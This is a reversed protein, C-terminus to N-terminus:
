KSEAKEAIIGASQEDLVHVIRKAKGSLITHMFVTPIAVVLGQVTTVLATSIGGAMLKPDGAGFDTIAQFTQIMGTVTGLLGMLPAVMSIIKIMNLGGEIAPREKLVAEELKLELSEVDIEPNDEAVKLVRGLPNDTSARSAKLQKSVKGGIVTLAFFRWIILILGVGGLGYIIIYGVLGGQEMREKLDPRAVMIQMIEGGLPLTPDVGVQTFGSTANELASPDPLGAPQMRPVNLTESGPTFFLYKGGSVVGYNGIRVVAQQAQQGDAQAVNANFRVVKGAEVTERQVEYILREIEEITPLSTESDMKKSLETAFDARGPYQLSVLSNKLNAQLDGSATKLHGFLEKLSGMREDLQARLAKIQLDQQEYTAELEASRAEEQARTKQANALLNARQNKERLFEAERQQHEQSERVKSDKMMQLLQDLSTAKDQAQAVGVFMLAGAAVLSLIKNKAFVRM